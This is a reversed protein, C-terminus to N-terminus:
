SIEKGIIEVHQETDREMFETQPGGKGRTQVEILKYSIPPSKCCGCTPACTLFCRACVCTPVYDNHYPFSCVSNLCCMQSARAQCFRPSRLGLTCCGCGLRCIDTPQTVVGFPYCADGVACCTDGVICLCESTGRCGSVCNDPDLTLHECCVANIVVSNAASRKESEEEPFVM